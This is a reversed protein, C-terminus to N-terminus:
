KINNNFLYYVEVGYDMNHLNYVKHISALSYSFRFGVLLKKSRIVPYKINAVWSFDNKKFEVMKSSPDWSYFESVSMKSSFMRGYAFGTEALLYKKKLNIKFGALIPIEIYNLKITVYAPLGYPNLFEFISGKQIYRLDFTGYIHDSFFYRVNFGFSLGGTGWINGQTPSYMYDIDGEIHIGYFGAFIGTTFEKNQALGIEFSLVLVLFFSIRVLKQTQCNM